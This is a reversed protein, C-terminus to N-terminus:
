LPMLIARRSPPSPKKSGGKKFAEKAGEDSQPHQPIPVKLSWGLRVLYSWGTRPHVSHGVRAAVWRAVKPGSWLGGGPPDEHKLAEELAAWGDADLYGDRGNQQRGDILADPGGANYERVVRRVWDAKRNCFDAILTAPHGQKKQLVAVWRMREDPDTAAEARARLEGDSLHPKDPLHM